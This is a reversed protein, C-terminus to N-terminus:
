CGADDGADEGDDEGGALPAQVQLGSKSLLALEYLTGEIKGLTLRLSGMKKGLGMPLYPLERSGAHVADVCELCLEVEPIAQRGKQAARIAVRGVEGTLDMLGGLYEHLALDFSLGSAEQLDKCSLLHRDKRFARFALAEAMEELSASFSHGRLTPFNVVLDKYIASADKACQRLYEDAKRYDARQLSYIANKAVKNVDRSRKIVLERAADFRDYRVKVEALVKLDGM